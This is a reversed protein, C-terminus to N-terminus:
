LKYRFKGNEKDTLDLFEEDVRGEDVVRDRRKNERVYYLRLVLTM